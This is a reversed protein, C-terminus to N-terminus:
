KFVIRHVQQPGWVPGQNVELPLCWNTSAMFRARSKSLCKWAEARSAGPGRQYHVSPLPCGLFYLISNFSMRKAVHLFKLVKLSSYFIYDLLFPRCKYLFILFYSIHLNVQLPQLIPVLLNVNHHQSRAGLLKLFKRQTQFCFSFEPLVRRGDQSWERHDCREECEWSIRKEIVQSFPVNFFSNMNQLLLKVKKVLENFNSNGVKLTCCM